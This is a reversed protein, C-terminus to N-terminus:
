TTCGPGTGTSAAPTASSSSPWCGSSSSSSRALGRRRQAARAPAGGAAPGHRRRRDGHALPARRPPGEHQEQPPEPAPPCRAMKAWRPHRGHSQTPRGSPSRQGSAAALRPFTPGRFPWCPTSRWPPAACCTPSPPSGRRGSCPPAGGDRAPVCEVRLARVLRPEVGVPRRRRRVARVGRVVRAIALVGRRAARRRGRDVPRAVRRRHPARAGPQGTRPLHDVVPDTLAGHHAQQQQIKLPELFGGSSASVWGLYTVTGAVSSVIAM